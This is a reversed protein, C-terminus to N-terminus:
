KKRRREATNQGVRTGEGIRFNRKVPRYVEDGGYVCRRRKSGLGGRARREWILRWYGDLGLKSRKARQGADNCFGTRRWGSRGTRRMRTM